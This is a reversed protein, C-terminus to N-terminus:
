ICVTHFILGLLKLKVRLQFWSHTRGALWREVNGYLPGRAALPMRRTLRERFSIQQAAVIELFTFRWYTSPELILSAQAFVSRADSPLAHCSTFKNQHLAPWDHREYQVKNNVSYREYFQKISM